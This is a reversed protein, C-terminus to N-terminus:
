SALREIRRPAPRRAGADAPFELYFAAGRRWHPDLGAVGGMLTALRRVSALGLGFGGRPVGNEGSGQYYDDFIHKADVRSVGVGDDIVWLRIAEFRHRRAALLVRTGRSHTLANHILNGLARDILSPDLALMLPHAAVRLKVGRESALPEHRAAVRRLLNPLSMNSRHPEVADAELRLHGLMHSLLEDAAALANRVGDVAADRMVGAPARLSQDFFLAVAQLPQGLDHSAAAIFKTKADREAAVEVLMKDLALAAADSALRATVTERVTRNIMGSAVVMAGALGFVYVAALREILAERTVLFLALSGLVTIAGSRNAIVNEPSCIIQVPICTVVFLAIVLQADTSARPMAGWIVGLAALHAGLIIAVAVWRWLRVTEEVSPRRAAMILTAAAWLVVFACIYAMVARNRAAPNDSLGAYILGCVLTFLFLTLASARL